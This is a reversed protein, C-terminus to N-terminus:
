DNTQRTWDTKPPIKAPQAQRAQCGEFQERLSDPDIGGHTAIMVVQNHPKQDGWADELTLSARKGVMQLVARHEPMESLYIVGKARYITTPLREFMARLARLTLPRDSTWHWTSFVKSHDHEHEHDHDHEHDHTEEVGHVHIDHPERQWVRESDYEGVGLLLELPVRGYSAELFRAEPVYSWIHQKVVEVFDPQVMDIKNLIVIDAVSIQDLALEHLDEPLALFQETDVVVFISDLRVLPRLEPLMFTNAVAIPDSVGSTEIIIYEPPPDKKLLDIAANLLDGRITCCICGNALNVTEGEVGVVLQADINVAGFDNVMVAIRMGHPSNLIYNLLTTKGSGLFGSLITMPVPFAKKEQTM